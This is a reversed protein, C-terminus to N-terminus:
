EMFITFCRIRVFYNNDQAFL